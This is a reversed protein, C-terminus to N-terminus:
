LAVADRSDERGRGTSGLRATLGVGEPRMARAEQMKVSTEEINLDRKTRREMIRRIINGRNATVGQRWKWGRSGARTMRLMESKQLNRIGEIAFKEELWDARKKRDDADMDEMAQPYYFPDVLGVVARKYTRHSDTRTWSGNMARMVPSNYNDTRIYTTAVGYVSHLYSRVDTKTVSQPIRFTAEYPNYPQGVPTHNRVLRFVINPLYIRQGVVRENDGVGRIGRVRARRANLRALWEVDTLDKGDEGILDGMARHRTYRTRESPTLGGATADIKPMKFVRPPQRRIRVARPTSATRAALANPSLLSPPGTTTAYSRRLVATFSQMVAALPVASSFSAPTSPQKTALLDGTATRPQRGLKRHSISTGM